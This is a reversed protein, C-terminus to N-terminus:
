SVMLLLKLMFCMIKLTKQFGIQFGITGIDHVSLSFNCVINYDIFLDYLIEM